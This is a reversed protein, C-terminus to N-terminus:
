PPFYDLYTFRGLRLSSGIRPLHQGPKREKRAVAM